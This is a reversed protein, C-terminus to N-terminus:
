RGETWVSPELPRLADLPAWAEGVVEGHTMLKVNAGAKEVGVSVLAGGRLLGIPRKGAADAFLPTDTLAEHTPTLGRSPSPAPDRAPALRAAPLWGDVALAGYTRVPQWGAADPAATPEVRAGAELTLRAPGRPAAALPTRTTAELLANEPQPLVLSCDAAGAAAADVALRGHLPAVPEIRGGGATRVLAGPLARGVVTGAADRLETERCIRAGLAAADIRGRIEVPGLLTVGSAARAVAVGPAVRFTAGQAVLDAAVVVIHTARPRPAREGRPLPTAGALSTLVLLVILARV